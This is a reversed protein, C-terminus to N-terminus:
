GWVVNASCNAKWDSHWGSPQSEAECYITKLGSCYAFAYSGINTVDNPIKISTISSCGSFTRDGITTIGNPITISTLKSCNEFASSGISTVSNPIALSKDDKGIAYQILTTGDKTYLNGDISKYNKNNEDVSIRTLSNCDDFAQHGISIVSDPITVSM